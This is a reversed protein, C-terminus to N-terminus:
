EIYNKPGNILCINIRSFNKKDQIYNQNFLDYLSPYILEFNKLILFSGKEMHFMVQNIMTYINM